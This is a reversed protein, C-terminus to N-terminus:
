WNRTINVIFRHNSFTRIYISTESIEEVMASPASTNTENGITVASVDLTIQKTFFPNDIIYLGFESCPHLENLVLATSSGLVSNYVEYGTYGNIETYEATGIYIRNTPTLLTYMTNTTICYWDKSFYPTWKVFQIKNVATNKLCLKIETVIYKPLTATYINVNGYPNMIMNGDFSKSSDIIINQITNNPLQAKIELSWETPVIDTLNFELKYGCLVLPENLRLTFIAEHSNITITNTNNPDFMSLIDQVFISSTLTGITPHTYSNTTADYESNDIFMSTIDVGHREISYEPMIYTYGADITNNTTDLYVYIPTDKLHYSPQLTKHFNNISVISNSTNNPVSVKLNDCHVLISNEPVDVFHLELRIGWTTDNDPLIKLEKVNITFSTLEIPEPLTTTMSPTNDAHVIGRHHFTSYNTYFDWEKLRSMNPAFHITYGSIKRTTHFSYHISGTSSTSFYVYRDQSLELLQSLKTDNTTPMSSSICGSEVDYLYDSDHNFISPLLLQTKTQINNGDLGYPLIGTKAELIVLPKVHPVSAITELKIQEFITPIASVELYQSHTHTNSAAGLESLTHTHIRDAANIEMPTHTHITPAAGVQLYTTNHPNHTDEIHNNLLSSLDGLQLQLVRHLDNCITNVYTKTALDSSEIGLFESLKNHLYYYLKDAIRHIGLYNIIITSIESTNSAVVSFISSSTTNEANVEIYYIGSTSIAYVPINNSDIISLTANELKEVSIRLLYHSSIHFVSTPIQIYPNIVTKDFLVAKGDIFRFGAGYWNDESSFYPSILPETITSKDKFIDNNPNITDVVKKIDRFANFIASATILKNPENKIESIVENIIKNQLVLTDTVVSSALVIEKTMSSGSM